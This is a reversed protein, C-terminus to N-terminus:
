HGRYGWAIETDALQIQHPLVGDNGLLPFKNSVTVQEGEKGNVITSTVTVNLRSPALGVTPMLEQVFSQTEAQVNSDSQHAFAYQAAQNAVLWTKNKFFIGVGANLILLTALIGSGVFLVLGVAGAIIGSGRQNRRM